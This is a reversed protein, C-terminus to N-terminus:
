ALKQTHKSKGGNMVFLRQQVGKGQVGIRAGDLQRAAEPSIFLVPTGNPPLAIDGMRSESIVVNPGWDTKDLRFAKESGIGIRGLLKELYRAAPRTLHINREKPTDYDEGRYGEFGPAARGCMLCRVETSGEESMAVLEPLRALKGGCYQCPLRTISEAEDNTTRIKTTM